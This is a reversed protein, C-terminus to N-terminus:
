LTLSPGEDEVSMESGYTGSFIADWEADSIASAAEALNQQEGASLDTEPNLVPVEVESAIDPTIDETTVIRGGDEALPLDRQEQLINSGDPNHQVATGDATVEM